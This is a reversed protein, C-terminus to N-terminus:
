DAGLLARQEMGMSLVLQINAIPSRDKAVGTESGFRVVGAPPLPQECDKVGAFQPGDCCLIRGATKLGTSPRLGLSARLFARPM